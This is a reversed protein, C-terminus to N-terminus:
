PKQWLGISQLPKIRYIKANHEICMRVYYTYIYIRNHPMEGNACKCSCWQSHTTHHPSKPPPPPSPAAATAAVAECPLSDIKMTIIIIPFRAFLPIVCSIRNTILIYQIQFYLSLACGFWICASVCVFPHDSLIPISNHKSTWSQRAHKTYTKKHLASSAVGPACCMLIYKCIIWTADCVSVCVVYM